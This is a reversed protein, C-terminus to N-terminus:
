RGASSYLNAARLLLLYHVRWTTWDPNREARNPQCSIKGGVRLLRRRHCFLRCRKSSADGLSLNGRVAQRDLWLALIQRAYRPARSRRCFHNKAYNLLRSDCSQRSAITSHRNAEKTRALQCNGIALQCYSFAGLRGRALVRFQNPTM